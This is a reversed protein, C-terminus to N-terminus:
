AAGAHDEAKGSDKLKSIKWRSTSSSGWQVMPIHECIYVVSRRFIPDQLAPM